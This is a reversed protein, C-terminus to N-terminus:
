SRACRANRRARSMVPAGAMGTTVCARRVTCGLFNVPRVRLQTFIPLPNFRQSNAGSDDLSADLSRAADKAPSCKTRHLNRNKVGKYRSDNREQRRAHQRQHWSVNGHKRPDADLLQPRSLGRAVAQESRRQRKYGSKRDDEDTKASRGAGDALKQKCCLARIPGIAPAM